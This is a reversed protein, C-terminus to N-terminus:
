CWKPPGQLFDWDSLFPSANAGFSQSPDFLADLTDPQFPSTIPSRVTNTEINKKIISKAANVLRPPFEFNEPYVDFHGQFRYETGQGPLERLTVTGGAQFATKLQGDKTVTTVSRTNATIHQPSEERWRISEEWHTMDRINNGIKTPLRNLFFETKPTTGAKWELDLKLEKKWGPVRSVRKIDVAKLTPLRKVIEWPNDRMVETLALATCNAVFFVSLDM